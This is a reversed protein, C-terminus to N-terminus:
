STGQYDRLLENLCKCKMEVKGGGVEDVEDEERGEASM